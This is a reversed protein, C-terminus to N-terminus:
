ISIERIKTDINKIKILVTKVKNARLYKELGEGWEVFCITDSRGFFELAGINELDALSLGRYTDIHVLNKIKSNQNEVKKQGKDKAQGAGSRFTQHPAGQGEGCREVEYVKMLVFTPSNVTRKIGLGKAVGQVFTTKGAGLDGVLLIVEGGKLECAFRQGLNITEETNHTRIIM